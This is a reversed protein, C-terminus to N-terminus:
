RSPAPRSIRVTAARWPSFAPRLLWLDREAPRKTARCAQAAVCLVQFSKRFPRQQRRRCMLRTLTTTAATPRTSSSSKWKTSGCKARRVVTRRCCVPLHRRRYGLPCRRYFSVSAETGATDRDEAPCTFPRTRTSKKPRLIRWVTPSFEQPGLGSSKGSPRAPLLSTFRNAGINVKNGIFCQGTVRTRISSWSSFFINAWNKWCELSVCCHSVGFRMHSSLNAVNKYFQRNKSNNSFSVAFVIMSFLVILNDQDKTWLNLRWFSM